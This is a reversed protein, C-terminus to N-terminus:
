EWVGLLNNFKGGSQRIQRKFDAEPSAEGEDRSDSGGIAAAAAESQKVFRGQADRVAKGAEQKATQGASQRGTMMQHTKLYALEVGQMGPDFAVRAPLSRFVSGFAQVFDPDFTATGEQFEPFRVNGDDDVSQQAALMLDTAYSRAAAQEQMPATTASFESRLEDRLAKQMQGLYESNKWNLYQIADLGKNEGILKEIHTWDIQSFLDSSTEKGDDAKLAGDIRKQHQKYWADWQNVTDIADKLLRDNHALRGNWSSFYQRAKEPDDFKRGGFEFEWRQAETMPTAAEVEETEQPQSEEVAGESEDTVVSEDLEPSVGLEANEEAM